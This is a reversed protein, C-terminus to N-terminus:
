IVTILPLILYSLNGDEYEILENFLAQAMGIAGGTFYPNFYLDDRLDMGEPPDYYGTLVSFIYDQFLYICPAM